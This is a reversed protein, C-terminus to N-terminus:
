SPATRREAMLQDIQVDAITYFLQDSILLYFLAM